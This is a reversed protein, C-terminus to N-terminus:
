MKLEQLTSVLMDDLLVYMYTRLAHTVKCTNKQTVPPHHTPVHIEPYSLLEDQLKEPIYMYICCM